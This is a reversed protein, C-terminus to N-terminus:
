EGMHEIIQELHNIEVTLSQIEAKVVEWEEATIEGRLYKFQKYDWNEALDKKIDDIKAHVLAKKQDLSMQCIEYDGTDLLVVDLKDDYNSAANHENVFQCADYYESAPIIDGQNYIM